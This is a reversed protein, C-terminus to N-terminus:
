ASSTPVAIRPSGGARASSVSSANANPTSATTLPSSDSAVVQGIARRHAVLRLRVARDVLIPLYRRIRAGAFEALAREVEAHVVADAAPGGGFEVLLRQDLQAFQVGLWVEEPAASTEPVAGDPGDVPPAQRHDLSTM